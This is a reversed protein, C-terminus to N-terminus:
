AEEKPEFWRGRRGCLGLMIADLWRYERQSECDLSWKSKPAVDGSVLNVKKRTLAVACMDSPYVEQARHHKCDICLHFAM